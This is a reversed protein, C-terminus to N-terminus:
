FRKRKKDQGHTKFLVAYAFLITLLIFPFMWFEVIHNPPFHWIAIFTMIFIAIWSLVVFDSLAIILRSPSFRLGKWTIILALSKYFGMNKLDNNKEYDEAWDFFRYKTAYKKVKDIQDEWYEQWFKSGRNVLTWILSTIVGFAAVLLAAGYSFYRAHDLCYAYAAFGVVTFGWFILTRKCLLEIELKRRSEEITLLKEYDKKSAM